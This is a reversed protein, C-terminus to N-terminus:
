QDLLLLTEMYSPFTKGSLGVYSIHESDLERVFIDYADSHTRAGFIPDNNKRFGHLTQISADPANITFLKTFSNPVGREMMWVGFVEKKAEGITELVALSGNIKSIALSGGRANALSDPFPIETFEENTMDFSMILNYTVYKPYVYASDIALWYIFEDIAVQFWTMVITNRPRNITPIGRWAGSSLTYVEARWFPPTTDLYGTYEYNIHVLKPDSTRPCVGFGIVNSYGRGKVKTAVVDISKRMSPNWLVVDSSTEDADSRYLCFLGQSVGIVEPPTRGRQIPAILSFKHQPFTDDDVVSFIKLEFEEYDMYCVLLHHQHTQQISYEAIFKSSDIVSKWTKSVSRFRMISKTPLRKMIETQIELPIYDAM